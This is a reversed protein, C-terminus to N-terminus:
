MGLQVEILGYEILDVYIRVQKRWVLVLESLNIVIIIEVLEGLVILLEQEYLIDM